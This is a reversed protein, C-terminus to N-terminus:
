ARKNARDIARKMKRAVASQFILTIEGFKCLIYMRKTAVKESETLSPVTSWRRLTLTIVSFITSYGVRLHRRLISAKLDTRGFYQDSYNNTYICRLQLTSLSSIGKRATSANQIVNM